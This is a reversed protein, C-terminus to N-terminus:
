DRIPSNLSKTWGGNLCIMWRVNAPKNPIVVSFRLSSLANKWTMLKKRKQTRCDEAICFIMTIKRNLNEKIFRSERKPSSIAISLPSAKFSRKKMLCNRCSDLYSINLIVKQRLYMLRIKTEQNSTM